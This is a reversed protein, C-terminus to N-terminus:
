EGVFQIDDESLELTKKLKEFQKQYMPTLEKELKEGMEKNFSKINNVNVPIKLFTKFEETVKELEERAVGYSDVKKGLLNSIHDFLAKQQKEVDVGTVDELIDLGNSLTLFNALDQLRANMLVVTQDTFLKM